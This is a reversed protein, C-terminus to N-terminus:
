ERFLDSIVTDSLFMGEETLILKGGRNIMWGSKLYKGAQNLFYQRADNGFRMCIEELDVGGSTRLGTMVAENFLMKETLKEKEAPITGEEIARIYKANHSVNWQREKGNFSHASPGIGLYPIGKWYASNHKSQCGPLAYNSIEYQLFGASAALRNLVRFQEFGEKDDQEQLIGKKKWRYFITGKEITLYYSSIHQVNLTLAKEVNRKWTETTMGPLGYILDVSINDFGADQAAQVSRVSQEVTHRRNMLTLDAEHFSQIGISIRNFGAHLLSECFGRDLDDPNAEVTIEQKGTGKFIDQVIHLLGKLQGPELVTPTGGGFYITEVPQDLYERQLILEHCLCNTMKGIRALSVTKHFDCYHCLQRCFPIHIYVGAM